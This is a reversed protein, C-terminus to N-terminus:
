GGFLPLVATQGIKGKAAGRILSPTVIETIQYSHCLHAMFVLAWALDALDLHLSVVRHCLKCHTLIMESPSAIKNENISAFIAVVPPWNEQRKPTVFKPIQYSHCLHAMLVLAWALDGFDLHLSIVRHCLECHSLIMESPFAIKNENISAFIAGVPPWNEQGKPTVIKSIQYSHCLHAMLVLAWALDALDLHLLKFDNRFVAGNTEQIRDWSQDSSVYFVMPYKKSINYGEWYVDVKDIFLLISCSLSYKKLSALMQWVIKKDVHKTCNAFRSNNQWNHM